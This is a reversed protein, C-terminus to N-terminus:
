DTPPPYHLTEVQEDLADGDDHWGVDADVLHAADQRWDVSMFRGPDNM